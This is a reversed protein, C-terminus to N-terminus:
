CVTNLTAGTAVALDTAESKICLNANGDIGPTHLALGSFIAVMRPGAFGSLFWRSGSRSRFALLLHCFLSFGGFSSLFVATFRDFLPWFHQFTPRFTAGFPIGGWLIMALANTGTGFSCVCIVFRSRFSGVSREEDRTFLPRLVAHFPAAGNTLTTFGRSGLTRLLGPVIFGSFSGAFGWLTLYVSNAAMGMDDVDSKIWMQDIDNLNAGDAFCAFGCSLAALRLARGKTFLKFMGLPSQFRPPDKKREERPLTEKLFLAVMLTHVAGMASMTLFVTQTADVGKVALIATEIWGGLIVGVCAASGLWASWFTLRDGSACDSLAAIM